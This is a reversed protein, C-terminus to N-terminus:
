VKEMNFQKRAYDITPLIYDFDKLLKSAKDTVGFVEVSSLSPVKLEVRNSKICASPNYGQYCSNIEEATNLIKVSNYKFDTGTFLDRGTQGHDAEIVIANVFNIDLDKCVLWRINGRTLLAGYLKRNKYIPPNDLDVNVLDYCFVPDLLGKKLISLYTLKYLDGRRTLNDNAPLSFRKFIDVPVETYYKISLLSNIRIHRYM